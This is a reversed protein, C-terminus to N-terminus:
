YTEQPKTLPHIFSKYDVQNPHKRNHNNHQPYTWTTTTTPLQSDALFGMSIDTLNSNNYMYGKQKDNLKSFKVM